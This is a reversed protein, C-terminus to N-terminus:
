WRPTWSIAANSTAVKVQLHFHWGWPWPRLSSTAPITKPLHLASKLTSCCDPSRTKATDRCAKTKPLFCGPRFKLAFSSPVILNGGNNFGSFSVSLEKVNSPRLMEGPEYGIGQFRLYGARCPKYPLRKTDDAGSYYQGRAGPLALLRDGIFIGTLWTTKM